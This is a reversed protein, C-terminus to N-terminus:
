TEYENLQERTLLRNNVDLTKRRKRNRDVQSPLQLIETRVNSKCTLWPEVKIGSNVIGGDHYLKWRNKMKPFSLPWLGSSEFGSIINEKKIIGEIWAKLLIAISDKKSFATCANEIMYADMQRKLITKFPKFVAIDLPQILHTSNAPLLVLIIKLEIAKEVIKNNYHLGYGDYVLVLPRKVEQPVSNSFHVLWKLFLKSNMFGKSAVSIVSGEISCDDM